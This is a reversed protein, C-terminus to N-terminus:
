PLKVAWFTSYTDPGAITSTLDTSVISSDGATKTVRVKYTEEETPEVFSTRSLHGNSASAVLSRTGDIYVDSSDTMLVSVAFSTSLSVHMEYGILYRGPQLTLQLAPIDEYAATMNDSVAVINHDSMLGVQHWTTPELEVGDATTLKGNVVLDEVTRVKIQNSM